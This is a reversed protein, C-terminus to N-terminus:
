RSRASFSCVAASACSGLTAGSKNQATGSVAFTTIADARVLAPSLLILAAALGCLALRSVFSCLQKKMTSV